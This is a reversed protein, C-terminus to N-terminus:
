KQLAAYWIYVSLCIAGLLCLILAYFRNDSDSYWKVRRNTVVSTKTGNVAKNHVNGDRLKNVFADKTIQVDQGSSVQRLDVTLQSKSQGSSYNGCEFKQKVPFQIPPPSQFTLTQHSSVPVRSNSHPKSRFLELEKKFLNANEIASQSELKARAVQIDLYKGERQLEAIIRQGEKATRVTDNLASHLTSVSKYLHLTTAVAVAEIQLPRFAQGIKMQIGIILTECLVSSVDSAFWEFLAGVKETSEPQLEAFYHLGQGSALPIGVISRTDSPNLQEIIGEFSPQIEKSLFDSFREFSCFHSSAVCNQNIVAILEFLTQALVQGRPAQNTFQFVAGFSHGLRNMGQEFTQQYVGIRITPVGNTFIRNLRFVTQREALECESSPLFLSDDSTRQYQPFSYAVSGNAPGCIYLDANM